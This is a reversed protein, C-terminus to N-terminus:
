PTAGQLQALTPCGDTFAFRECEERSYGRTLSARVAQWLTGPDISFVLMNGGGPTVAIRTQDLFAVGQAQGDVEIQHLLTGTAGDWVRVIGDGAGTVVLRGDPSLAIAKPSGEHARTTGTVQLTEADIRELSGGGSGGLGTIGVITRGDALYGGLGVGADLQAEKAISWTRTDLAVIRGDPSAVILRTGDPSYRVSTGRVFDRDLERVIRGTGADWVTLYGEFGDIVAVRTQDPSWAVSEMWLPFPTDPFARCSPDTDLRDHILDFLDWPCAGQLDVLHEGTASDYIAPAQIRGAVESQRVVRTGDPSIGLVQGAAHPLTAVVALTKASILTTPGIEAGGCGYSNIAIGDGAVVLSSAPVSTGCFTVTGLEGRITPDVLTATHATENAVLVHGDASVSPRGNGAAPVQFLLRGDAGDWRRLSEDRGVSFLMASDPAFVVGGFSEGGVHLPAIITGSAVRLLVMPRDGYVLLSGDDSLARVKRDREEPLRTLPLDLIKRGSTTELVHLAQYKADTYAVYRGDRTMAFDGATAPVLIRQDGTRLDVTMLRSDWGPGYCEPASGDNAPQTLAIEDSVALVAMGCPGTEIRRILRGTRAEWVFIGLRGAPPRLGAHADDDGWALGTVLRTGDPTFLAATFTAQALDDHVTWLQQDKSLDVVVIDDNPQDYGGSAAMLRGDPDLDTFLTGLPRDAPWTWRKVVADAAAARHLSSEIEITPPVLAGASVALLKSLSPDEGLVSVAAASLEDARAVTANHEADQRAKLAEAARQDALTRQEQANTAQQRALDGQQRAVDGQILAM